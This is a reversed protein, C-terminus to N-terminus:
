VHIEARHEGPLGLALMISKPYMGGWNLNNSKSNAIGEPASPGGRQVQLVSTNGGGWPGRRNRINKKKERAEIWVGGLDRHHVGGPDLEGRKGQKV